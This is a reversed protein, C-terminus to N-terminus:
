FWTKQPANTELLEDVEEETLSNILLEINHLIDRQRADAKTWQDQTLRGFAMDKRAQSFERANLKEEANPTESRIAM